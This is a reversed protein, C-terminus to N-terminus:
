KTFKYVDKSVRDIFDSIKKDLMEYQAENIKGEKLIEILEMRLGSVHNLYDIQKSKSFKNYEDHIKIMYEALTNREKRRILWRPVYSVIGIIIGSAALYPFIDNFSLPHSEVLFQTSASLESYNDNAPRAVIEYTGKPLRVDDFDVEYIGKDDTHANRKYEHTEQGPSGISIPIIEDNIGSNNTYTLTGSVVMKTPTNEEISSSSSEVKLIANIKAKIGISPTTELLNELDATSIASELVVATAANIIEDVINGGGRQVINNIIDIPRTGPTLQASLAILSQALPGKPDSDVESAIESMAQIAMTDSIEGVETGIGEVLQKIKDPDPEPDVNPNHTTINNTIAEIFPSIQTLLTNSPQLEQDTQISAGVQQIPILLLVAKLIILLVIVSLKSM